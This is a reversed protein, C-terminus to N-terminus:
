ELNSLLAHADKSSQYADQELLIHIKDLSKNLLEHQTIMIHQIISLFEDFLIILTEESIIPLIILDRICHIDDLHHEDEQSEELM